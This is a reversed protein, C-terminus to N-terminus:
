VGVQPLIVYSDITAPRIESAHKVFERL